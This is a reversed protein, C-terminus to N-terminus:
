DLGARRFGEVYHQMEAPEKIPMKTLLWALVKLRARFLAHDTM